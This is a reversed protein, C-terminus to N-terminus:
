RNDTDITRISRWPAVMKQLRMVGGLVLGCSILTSTLLFFVVEELPLLGGILIGLSHQPSITWISQYIAFADAACLYLVVPILAALLRGRRRWLMDGGVGFQLILPPLAWALEWGLYTGPKWGSVLMGVAALWISVGVAVSFWRIAAPWDRLLGRRKTETSQTGANENDGGVRSLLWLVWLGVLVTQLLFFLMEELPVHDFAVGSISTPKYSWVGTAILHNDWPITYMVAVLVLAALLMYPAKWRDRAGDDQPPSDHFHRYGDWMVFCALLIIPVVIFLLLFQGYTM